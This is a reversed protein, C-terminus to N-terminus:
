LVILTRSSAQSVFCFLYQAESYLTCASLFDFRLYVKSPRRAHWGQESTAAARLVDLQTRGVVKRRELPLIPRVFHVETGTPRNLGCRTRRPWTGRSTHVAIPRSGGGGPWGTGGKPVEYHARPPKRVARGWYARTTFMCTSHRRRFRRPRSSFATEAHNQTSLCLPLALQDILATPWLRTHPGWSPESRSRM